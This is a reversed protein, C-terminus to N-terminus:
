RRFRDSNAHVPCAFAFTSRGVESNRDSDNVFGGQPLPRGKTQTDTGNSPTVSEAQAPNVFLAGTLLTTVIISKLRM